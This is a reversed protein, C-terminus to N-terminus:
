GYLLVYGLDQLKVLVEERFELLSDWLCVEGLACVLLCIRNCFCLMNSEMACVNYRTAHALM